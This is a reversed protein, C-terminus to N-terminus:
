HGRDDQLPVFNKALIPRKVLQLKNYIKLCVWADTAAYSQQPPTLTAAEWNSLRQAKSIRVGLVVAAMKRVSKEEVGWQHVINQLDVFGGQRFRRLRHLAQIDNPLAAGIKLIDPNELIGALRRDLNLKNLRILYCTELTSLQLLAVRHVEGAKFAPRTETDFGLAHCAAMDRCARALAEESDVVVIRGEFAAMPLEALADNTITVPFM